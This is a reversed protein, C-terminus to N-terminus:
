YTPGQLKLMSSLLTTYLGAIDTDSHDQGNGHGNTSPSEFGRNKIYIPGFYSVQRKDAYDM